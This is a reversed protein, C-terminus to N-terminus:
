SVIRYGTGWGSWCPTDIPRDRRFITARDGPQPLSLVARAWVERRAPDSLAAAVRRWQNTTTM